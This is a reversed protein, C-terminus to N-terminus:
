IVSHSPYLEPAGAAAFGGAPRQEPIAGAAGAYGVAVPQTNMARKLKERALALHKSVSQTTIDMGRAIETVSMDNYYYMMIVERQRMPLGSVIRMVIEHLEESEARAHPIFDRKEETMGEVYDDINLSVGQKLHKALYRNKENIIIRALWGKFAKPNRLGHINECVRILVEQSVDEVNAQNGLIYTLQFLIGKAIEECLLGLAKRDGQVAREVLTEFAAKTDAGSEHQRKGARSLM